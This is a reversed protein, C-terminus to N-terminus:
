KFVNTFRIISYVIVNFIGWIFVYINDKWVASVNFINPLSNRILVFIIYSIVFFLWFIILGKKSLNGELKAHLSLGLMPVLVSSICILTLISM